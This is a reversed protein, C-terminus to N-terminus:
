IKGNTKVLIFLIKIFKISFFAQLISSIVVIWRFLYLFSWDSESFVLWLEVLVTYLSILIWYAGVLFM